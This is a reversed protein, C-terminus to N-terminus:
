DISDECSCFFYGERNGTQKSDENRPRFRFYKLVEILEPGPYAKLAPPPPILRPTAVPSSEFELTGIDKTVSVGYFWETPARNHSKVISNGGIHPLPLRSPARWRRDTPSVTHQPLLRVGPVSLRILILADIGLGCCSTM